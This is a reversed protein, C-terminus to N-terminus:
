TLSFGRKLISAWNSKAYLFRIVYITHSHEDIQYFVLYNKVMIFRIGWSSLIADDVLAFKKPFISLENVKAELENLLTEVAQPNKLVSEIHDSASVM